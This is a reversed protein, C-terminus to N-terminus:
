KDNLDKLFKPSAKLKVKLATNFRTGIVHQFFHLKMDFVFKNFNMVYGLVLFDRMAEFVTVIILSVEAKDIVPYKEYVRDVIPGLTKINIPLEKNLLNVLDERSLGMFYFEVIEKQKKM